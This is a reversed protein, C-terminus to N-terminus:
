NYNVYCRLLIESAELVTIVNLDVAQELEVEILACLQSDSIHDLPDNSTAFVPTSVLLTAILLRLM